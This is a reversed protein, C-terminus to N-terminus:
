AWADQSFDAFGLDGGDQPSVLVIGEGWPRHLTELWDLRSRKGDESQTEDANATETEINTNMAM